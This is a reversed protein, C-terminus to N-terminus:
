AGAARGGKMQEINKLWQQFVRLLQKGRQKKRAEELAAGLARDGPKERLLKTLVAVARDFHGQRLCEKAVSETLPFYEFEGATPPESVVGRPERVPYAAKKPPGILDGASTEEDVIRFTGKLVEHLTKFRIGEKTRGKRLLVDGMLDFIRVADMYQVQLHTLVDLAGEWDKAEILIEANKLGASFDIAGPKATRTETANSYSETDSM